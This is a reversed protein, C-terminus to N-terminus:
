TNGTAGKAQWMWLKYNILATSNKSDDKLLQGLRPRRRRSIQFTLVIVYQWNEKERTGHLEGEDMKWGSRTGGFCSSCSFTTLLKHLLRDRQNLLDYCDSDTSLEVYKSINYNSINSSAAMSFTQGWTQLLLIFIVVLLPLIETSRTISDNIWSASDPTDNACYLCM